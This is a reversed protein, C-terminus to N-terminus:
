YSDFTERKNITKHTVHSCCNHLLKLIDNNLIFIHGNYVIVAIKCDYNVSINPYFTFLSIAKRWFTRQFNELNSRTNGRSLIVSPLLQLVTPWVRKGLTKQPVKQISNQGQYGCILRVINVKAFSIRAFPKSM